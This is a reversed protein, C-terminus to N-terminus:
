KQEGVSPLSWLGRLRELEREPLQVLMPNATPTLWALLEEINGVDMATCGSTGSSPGAWIHLFICSGSGPLPTHANHDIVVGWRYLDDSRRMQESSKWDATRVKSRDVLQNYHTSDADDVCEINEKSQTYPLRVFSAEDAPAYGFASSLHFVGAPARGDGERKIPGQGPPAGHAGRGWALGTRGVVIPIESGIPTWGGAWSNREFRQLKGTVSHWDATTVLIM